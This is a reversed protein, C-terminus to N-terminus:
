PDGGKVEPAPDEGLVVNDILRTDGAFAALAVLARDGITEHDEYPAIEDADAIEAYDLRLGADAIADAIPKKLAGVSRQGSEFARVAGALSRALVPARRRQDDDLYANRSSLALGDPERVIPHGYIEVPLMLDRAMRGIIKLQQYDKRGFVAVCPGAAAFLKAVITTVGEFHTPRSRGCLATTLDAVRVRTREDEPYMQAISPAFVIQVGADGCKALDGDLDRPYADLDEGPAFQTPNVFITTAVVDAREQAASVLALHARHLAGMTPVLGLRKGAARVADCAARFDAVTRCLAPTM